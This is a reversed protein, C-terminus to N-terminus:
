VSHTQGAQSEGTDVLVVRQFILKKLPVVSPTMELQTIRQERNMACEAEEDTPLRGKIKSLYDKREQKLGKLEQRLSKLLEREM